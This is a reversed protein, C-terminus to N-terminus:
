SGETEDTGPPKAPAFLSIQRPSPYFQLVDVVKYHNTARKGSGQRQEITMRVRYKDGVFVGGRDLAEKAINTESIDAYIIQDGYYFRWNEAKEDFVAGYVELFAEIPPSVLPPEAPVEPAAACSAQIGAADDRGITSLPKDNKRFQLRDYGQAEIPALTKAAAKLVPPSQLLNYVPANITISEINAGEGISLTVGGGAQKDTIEVRPKRGKLWALIKFLGATVTGAAGSASSLIGLWELIEKADAGETSRIMGLLTEKISQVLEFDINFCKHEFDSKVLLQVQSREGNLVRNAERVLDGFALLAPALTQVDMSHGGDPGDYAVQFSVTM